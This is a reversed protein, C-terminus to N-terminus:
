GGHKGGGLQKLLAAVQPSQLFQEIQAPNGALDTVKKVNDAGLKDSVASLGGEQVTKALQEPTTGLRKAAFQLLAQLQEPTVGSM